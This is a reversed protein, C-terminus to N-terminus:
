GIPEPCESIPFPPVPACHSGQEVCLRLASRLQLRVIGDIPGHYLQAQMLSCQYYKVFEMGGFTMAAEHHHMAVERDGLAQGIEGRTANFIPDQPDIELAQEIDSVGQSPRGLKLYANARSNLASGFRPVIGIAADFDPIARQYQGLRSHALGRMFFAEARLLPATDPADILASCGAIRRESDRSDCGKLDEAMAGATAAMIAMMAIASSLPRV